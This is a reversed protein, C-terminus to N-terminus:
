LLRKEAACDQYELVSFSTSAKNVAIHTNLTYKPSHVSIVTQQLKKVVAAALVHTHRTMLFSVISTQNRMSVYMLPGNIDTAHIRDGTTTAIKFLSNPQVISM